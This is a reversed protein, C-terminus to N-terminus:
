PKCFMLFLRNNVVGLSEYANTRHNFIPSTVYDVMMGAFTFGDSMRQMIMASSTAYAFTGSKPSMAYPRNIDLANKQIFKQGNVIIYPDQQSDGCIYLEQGDHTFRMPGVNIGADYEATNMVM